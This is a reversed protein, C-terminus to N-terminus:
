ASANRATEVIRHRRGETLSRQPPLGNVWVALLDPTLVACNPTRAMQPDPGVVAAYVKVIFDTDDDAMWRRVREADRTARDLPNEISIWDRATRLEWTGERVRTIGTPPLERVIAIGFRGMVINSVGRGDPLTLASAVFVDDPLSDLGRLVNSHTPRKGKVAALIWVLRATGALVLTGPAVFAIAWTAMGIAMEGADPRGTPMAAAMLPTAFVLYAIAIGSVILLTGFVTGVLVLPVSSRAAMPRPTILEMVGMTADPQRESL